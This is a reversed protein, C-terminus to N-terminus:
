IHEDWGAPVCVPIVAADKTQELVRLVAYRGDTTKVLYVNGEIVDSIQGAFNRSTKPIALPEDNKKGSIDSLYLARPLEMIQGSMAWLTGNGKADPMYQLDGLHGEDAKAMAQEPLIPKNDEMSPLTGISQTSFKFLTGGAALQTGMAPLVVRGNLLKCGTFDEATPVASFAAGGSLALASALLWARVHKTRM